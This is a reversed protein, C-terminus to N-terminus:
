SHSFMRRGATPLCASLISGTHTETIFLTKNGPGGYAINTTM